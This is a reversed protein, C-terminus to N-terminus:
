TGSSVDPPVCFVADLNGDLQLQGAAYPIVWTQGSELVVTGAESSLTGAGRTVILIAFGRIDELPLASGRLLVRYAQFFPTTEGAFLRWVQSGERERVLVPRPRLRALLREDYAARDFCDLADGWSLGLTAQEPTLGFVAYEALISFSTPEQLEILLVGPGFAHVVGAPVYLVDGTQVDLRNMAALMNDIDQAAIWAQLREQSVERKFGLWM